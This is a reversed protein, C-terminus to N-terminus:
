HNASARAKKWYITVDTRIALKGGKNQKQKTTVCDPHLLFLGNASEEMAQEDRSTECGGRANTGRHDQAWEAMVYNDRGMKLMQIMVDFDGMFRLRNHQAALFSPRHFLGCRILRTNYVGPWSLQNNGQRMSVGISCFRDPEQEVMAEATGFMIEFDDVTSMKVLSTDYEGVRFFFKLDDDMMWFYQDESHNDALWSAMRERKQSIKHEYTSVCAIEGGHNLLEGHRMNYNSLEESPVFLVVQSWLEKPLSQLTLVDGARGRGPIAIKYKM